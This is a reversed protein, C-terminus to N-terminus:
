NDHCCIPFTSQDLFRSLSCALSKGGGGGHHFFLFVQRHIHVGLCSDWAWLANRNGWMYQIVEAEDEEEGATAVYGSTGMGMHIMGNFTLRIYPPIRWLLADTLGSVSKLTCLRSIPTLHDTMHQTTWLNFFSAMTWYLYPLKQVFLFFFDVGDFILRQCPIVRAEAAAHFHM